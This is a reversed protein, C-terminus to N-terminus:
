DAVYHPEPPAFLDEYPVLAPAGLPVPVGGREAGHVARIQLRYLLFQEFEHAAPEATRREIM